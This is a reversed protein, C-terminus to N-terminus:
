ASNIIERGMGALVAYLQSLMCTDTLNCAPRLSLVASGSVNGNRISEYIKSVQSGVTDGLKGQEGEFMYSHSLRLTLLSHCCLYRM